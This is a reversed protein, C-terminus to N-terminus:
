VTLNASRLKQVFAETKLSIGIHHQFHHTLATKIEPYKEKPMVIAPIKPMETNLFQQLIEVSQPTIDLSDKKLRKCRQCLVGGSSSNFGLSESNLNQSASGKKDRHRLTETAFESNGCATCRNLTPAYGLHALLKIEFAPIINRLNESAALTRLTNCVLVYVAKHTADYEEFVKNLFEAIYSAGVIKNFDSKLPPFVEVVDVQTIRLLPHNDTFGKSQLATKHFFIV